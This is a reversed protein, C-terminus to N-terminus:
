HGADHASGAYPGTRAPLAILHLHGLNQMLDPHRRVDLPILEEAAGDQHIDLVWGEDIRHGFAKIGLDCLPVVRGCAPYLPRDPVGDLDGPVAPINIYEVAIKAVGNM